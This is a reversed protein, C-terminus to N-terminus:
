QWIVYEHRNKEEPCKGVKSITCQTFMYLNKEYKNFNM